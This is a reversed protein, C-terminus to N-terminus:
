SVSSSLYRLPAHRNAHPQQSPDGDLLVPLFRRVQRGLRELKEPLWEDDQDLFAVYTTQLAAVGANRAASVGRNTQSLMSLRHDALPAEIAVATDSGDDVIVCRWDRYTQNLVSKLARELHGAVPNYAPIVVGVSAM